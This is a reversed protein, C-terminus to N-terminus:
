HVSSVACSILGGESCHKWPSVPASVQLMVTSASFLQKLALASAIFARVQAVTSPPLLM